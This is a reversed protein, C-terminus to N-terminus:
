VATSEWLSELMAQYHSLQHWVLLVSIGLTRSVLDLTWIMPTERMHPAFHLGMKEWAPVGHPAGSWPLPPFLDNTDTWSMSSVLIVAQKGEGSVGKNRRFPEGFMAHSTLQPESRIRLIGLHWSSLWMESIQSLCAPFGAVPQLWPAECFSFLALPPINCRIGVSKSVLKAWHSFQALILDILM